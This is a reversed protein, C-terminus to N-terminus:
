TKPIELNFKAGNQYSEDVYIKGKHMEVIQKCIALGFGSGLPKKLHQNKSQYFKDFIYPVDEKEIGKGNDAISCFIKNKDSNLEINIEGEDKPVFKLANGLINTFVQIMKDEDINLKLKEDLDFHIKVGKKDALPQVIRISEHITKVLNRESVNLTERGSSLKELDLINNILKTLRNTDDVINQLFKERLEQPMEADQLVESAAQIATVPTKLEHAVTDLFSDKQRDQIILEDNAVKLEDTLQILRHSQQTLKKNASRAEKNDELINLVEVLSVPKEKVVSGILIKASASGITGTLLKESFNIFRADALEEEFSVNYKRKFIDIARNARTEGLFRVLLEKIDEYYAEGKWVFANEQLSNVEYPKTFMEGYNRERYNNKFSVSVILYTFVNVLLSWMFAHNIPSLFNVGFLNYPKLYHLGFYGSESISNQGLMTEQTFPIILTFVVVLFGLLIGWKAGRSSGRNWYLGIFFAPALQAITVFSILGISILPLEQNWSIYLFYSAIILLFITVRRINKISKENEVSFRNAFYDLLGYPIILNNSLMTALAISSVVTMSMVASFGGLFVLTALFEHGQHLPILLSYYDQNVNEGLLIMGGWAIFIVFVNFILLYLPFGWIASKMQFRDVYEVVSLQFQRPLLFIALFSLGTMSMWNVGKELGFQTHIIDPHLQQIQNYIDTTGNFLYFIVYIGVAIFFTLKIISEVAVSFVIGRKRNSADSSLTGFFAAFLALILTIYFTFDGLLHSHAFREHVIIQFSEAVAKIQLSLYPVIGFLCLLTILAGLSRNNGYRLSIFDAVSSINNAKSLYIIKRTVVIWLPMAIIPGLYIPLFEISKNAALGVSGYYTWATCYVALSLTYVLPHNVWKSKTNKEAWFALYFMVALYMVIIGILLFKNM